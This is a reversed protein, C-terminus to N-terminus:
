GAALALTGEPRRRSRGRVCENTIQFRCIWSDPWCSSCRQKNPGAGGIRQLVMMWVVVPLSYIQASRERGELQQWQGDTVVRRFLQLLGQESAEAKAM